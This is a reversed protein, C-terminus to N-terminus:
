VVKETFLAIYIVEIDCLHKLKETLIKARGESRTHIRLFPVEGGKLQVVKSPSSHRIFVIHEAFPLSKLIPTMKGILAEIEKEQYGIFQLDPM